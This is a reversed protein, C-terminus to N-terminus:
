MGMRIRLVIDRGPDLAFAKYRSLFDRYAVNGANRVRLDVSGERGLLRGRVGGSLHVLTYGDVAIDLPNLRAPEAVHEVEAGLWVWDGLREGHVEAGLVFRRPPMLPLPEDRTVNYGRVYDGRGSLTCWPTTEVDVSAEGGRLFADAQSYRYVSYGDRVENAPQIFLFGDFDSRFVSVEARVVSSEWQLGVDLNLSREEDLDARGIEYRSEGLRPGSAYLEFLTPARWASGVSAKLDLGDALDLNAGVSWTPTGFARPGYGAAAVRVVDTRVGALVSWPGRKVRELVFLGAARQDASPVIPILGDTGSDQLKGTFGVTGSTGSVLSHHLLAEALGTTLTLDFV